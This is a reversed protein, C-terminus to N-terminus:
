AHTKGEYKQRYEAFSSYNPIGKSRNRSGILTRDIRQQLFAVVEDFSGLSIFDWKAGFRAKIRAYIAAYKFNRGKQEGAFENYRDILHKLYNRHSLSGGISGVPLNFALKKRPNKITLNSAQISGPSGIMVHGGATIHVTRYEKLLLEAIRREFESVEVPGKQEHNRKMELLWSVTYREPESDIIKSHRACLLVLNGFSHREEETQASDYRPGGPRAAKIHCIIGTITGSMEAIPILCDPFACRNQSVAFLHKIAKLSPEM